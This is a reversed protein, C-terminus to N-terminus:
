VVSKRTSAAPIKARGPVTSRNDQRFPPACRTDCPPNPRPGYGWQRDHCPDIAPGSQGCPDKVHAPADGARPLRDCPRSGTAAQLSSFLSFLLLIFFHSTLRSRFLTTYPFLTYTLTSRPPRLIM